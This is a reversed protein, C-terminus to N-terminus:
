IIYERELEINEREWPTHLTYHTHTPCDTQPDKYTSQVLWDLLHHIALRQLNPLCVFGLYVLALSFTIIGGTVFLIIKGKPQTYVGYGKTCLLAYSTQRQLISDISPVLRFLLWLLLRKKSGPQFVTSSIFPHYRSHLAM